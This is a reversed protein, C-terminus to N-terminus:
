KTAVVTGCFTANICDVVKRSTIAKAPAQIGPANENGVKVVPVNV